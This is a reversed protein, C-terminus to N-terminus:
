KRQLETMLGDPYESQQLHFIRMTLYNKMKWMEESEANTAIISLQITFESARPIHQVKNV